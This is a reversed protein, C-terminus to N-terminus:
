EMHDYMEGYGMDSMIQAYSNNVEPTNLNGIHSAITELEEGSLQALYMAMAALEDEDEEANLQAFMLENEDDVQSFIQSMYNEIQNLEDDDLTALIAAVQPFFVENSLQYEEDVYTQSAKEVLATAAAITYLTFRM